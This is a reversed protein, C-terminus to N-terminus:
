AIYITRKPKYQILLSSSQPLAMESYLLIPRQEQGRCHKTIQINDV